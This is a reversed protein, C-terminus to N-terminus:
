RAATSDTFYHGEDLDDVLGPRTPTWTVLSRTRGSSTPNDLSVFHGLFGFHAEAEQPPVSVAPVMLHRGITEAIRRFPVGEDAVAHLRCGPPAADLALGFLHAADLVHVAPWRNSGEGVYGAVGTDRAIAILTPTFGHRDFQGHVIPPLRVVSSRIGREALGIVANEADIRPGGALVDAETAVGGLGGAALTLTGSATVLPKGSDVLADGIANIAHLDAVVASGFDGARMADHKFALHVVGDSDSAAKALGDLDDIDGRHVDAGMAGLAAASHDSRALGVVEHGASLLEPVVASGIYGSAGTVFVRM